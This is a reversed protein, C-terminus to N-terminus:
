DRNPVISNSIDGIKCWEWSETIEFPIEEQTIPPLSKQKKIKKEKILQEKEAKIKALLESASNAGDVLEPHSTRWESTLKGQMAERLFAQRLQKVLDLQHTLEKDLEWKHTELSKYEEVFKLQEKLPPLCIGKNFFRLSFYLREIGGANISISALDGPNFVATISILGRQPKVFGSKQRGKIGTLKISKCWM